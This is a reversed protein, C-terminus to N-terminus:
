EKGVRREESRLQQRSSFVQDTQGNAANTGVTTFGTTNLLIFNNVYNTALAATFTFNPFPGFSAPPQISGYNRWGVLKDTQTQPIPYPLATLDAFTVPGKRGVRQTPIPAASPDTPYGAVNM